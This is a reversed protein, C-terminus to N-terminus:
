HAKFNSVDIIFHVILGIKGKENIMRVMEWRSTTLHVQCRAIFYLVRYSEESLPIPRDFPGIGAFV